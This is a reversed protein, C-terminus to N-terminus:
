DNSAEADDSDLNDGSIAAYCKIRHEADGDSLHWSDTEADFSAASVAALSFQWHRRASGDVCDISLLPQNKSDAGASGASVQALLEKDLNFQWAYLDDIELMDAAELAEILSSHTTSM